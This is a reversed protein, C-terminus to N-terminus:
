SLAVLSDKMDQATGASLCAMNDLKDQLADWCSVLFATGRGARLGRIRLINFHVLRNHHMTPHTHALQISYRHQVPLARRMIVGHAHM